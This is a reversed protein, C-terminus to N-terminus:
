LLFCICVPQYLNNHHHHHHGDYWPQQNSRSDLRTSDLRTTPQNTPQSVVVFFLLMSWVSNTTTVTPEVFKSCMIRSRKTSSRWRKSCMGIPKMMSHRSLTGM